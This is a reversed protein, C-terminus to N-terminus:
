SFLAPLKFLLWFPVVALAVLLVFPWVLVAMLGIFGYMLYDFKDDYIERHFEYHYGLAIPWTIALIVCVILYLYTM